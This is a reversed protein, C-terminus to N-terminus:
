PRAGPTSRCLEPHRHRSGAPASHSGTLARGAGPEPLFLLRSLHLSTLTAIRPSSRRHCRPPHCLQLDAQPDAVQFCGARQVQPEPEPLDGSWILGQQAVQREAAGPQDQRVPILVAVVTGLAPVSGEAPRQSRSDHQGDRRWVQIGGVIQPAGLSQRHCELWLVGVPCADEVAEVQVAVLEHELLMVFLLVVCAPPVAGGLRERAVVAGLVMFPAYAFLNFSAYHTVFMWLWNRSWFESWGAAFESWMRQRPPRSGAPMRVRLLCYGSVAYTLADVAFAWGPGGAAVIVGALAPGAVQGGSMAMGRLANAQQLRGASVLQPMLGTLAPSFFAQGAGLVGALVIYVWLPPSGSLVLGALLGESVFRVADASVMTTRRSFRDAIVGGFLLLVLLPVTEAALVEGVEGASGGRELVGFTLAVPVMAAGVLSVVYGTFFLRFDREGLVGRRDPLWGRVPIM